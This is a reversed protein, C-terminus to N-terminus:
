SGESVSSECILTHNKIQSNIHEKILVERAILKQEWCRQQCGKLATQLYRFNQGKVMLKINFFKSELICYVDKSNFKYKDFPHCWVNICKEHLQLSLVITKKYPIIYLSTM